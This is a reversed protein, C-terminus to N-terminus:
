SAMRAIASSALRFRSMSQCSGVRYRPKTLRTCTRTVILSTNIFQAQSLRISPSLISESPYISTIVEQTVDIFDAHSIVPENDKIFVPIIHEEKIQKFDGEITNAEIFPKDTSTAPTEAIQDKVQVEEVVEVQPKKVPKRKNQKVQLEM